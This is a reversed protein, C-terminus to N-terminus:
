PTIAMQFADAFIDFDFEHVGTTGAFVVDCSIGAFFVRERVDWASTQTQAFERTSGGFGATEGVGASGSAGHRETPCGCAHVLEVNKIAVEADLTRRFAELVELRQDGSANNVALNVHVISGIKKAYGAVGDEDGDGHLNGIAFETELGFLSHM